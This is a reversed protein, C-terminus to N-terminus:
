VAARARPLGRLPPVPQPTARGTLCLAVRLTSVLTEVPAATGALMGRLFLPEGGDGGAVPLRHLHVAVAVPLRAGDGGGAM